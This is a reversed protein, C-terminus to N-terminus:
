VGCLWMEYELEDYLALGCAEEAYQLNISAMEEYGNKMWSYLDKTKEKEKYSILTNDNLQSNKENKKINKINNKIQNQKSM